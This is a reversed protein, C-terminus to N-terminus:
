LRWALFAGVGALSACVGLVGLGYGLRTQRRKLARLAITEASWAVNHQNALLDGWLAQPLSKAEGAPLFYCGALMGPESYENQTGELLVQKLRTRWAQVAGLSQYLRINERLAPPLIGAEPTTSDLRFQARVDATMRELFLWDIGEQFMTPVEAPDLDPLPPFQLYWGTSSKTDVGSVAAYVPLELGTAQRVVRLDDQMQSTLGRPAAFPVILMIGQIPLTTGRDRALLQCLYHLRAAAADRQRPKGQTGLQSLSDCVVFIAERRTFVRFPANARASLSSAGLSELLTQLESTLSGLVLFAPTKGLNVDAQELASRTETWAADLDPWLRPLPDRALSLWLGRSLWGLLYVFLALLPLWTRHLMPWPSRLVREFAGWRNLYWLGVGLASWFLLHLGWRALPVADKADNRWPFVVGAVQQVPIWCWSSISM